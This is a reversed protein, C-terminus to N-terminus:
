AGPVREIFSSLVPVGWRHGSCAQVICYVCIGIIGLGVVMNLMQAIIGIGPLMSLVFLAFYVAIAVATILLGQKAHWAIHPDHRKLFYPILAFLGFYSLICMIVDPKANPQNM